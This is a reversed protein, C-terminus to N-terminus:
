SEDAAETWAAEIAQALDVTDGSVPAKDFLGLTEGLKTLAQVKPYLKIEIGNQGEKISAIAARKGEPIDATAKVYVGKGTIEVFDTANAFGIRALERIVDKGDVIGDTIASDLARKRAEFLRPEVKATHELKCAKEDVSDPQWKRSNPYAALYAQRQSKGAVRHRIYERQNKTITDAV